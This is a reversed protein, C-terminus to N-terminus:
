ETRLSRVIEHRLDVPGMARTATKVSTNGCGHKPESPFGLTLM